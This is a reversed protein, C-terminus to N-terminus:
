ALKEQELRRLERRLVKGIATKPLTDIFEVLRPVKYTAMHEKCYEIIDDPKVKERFGEKLVVYAKVSEGRYEDHVGIVAVEMVGPHKMISSEVDFPSINYGSAIILDKIRDVFFIFGEENMYGADGTRLWGDTQFAEKTEDPKNWYGKAVQPSRYMIEGPKGIPLIERTDPDVIKVEGTTPVGISSANKKNPVNVIAGANCETMGWGQTLEVGTKELWVKQVEAPVPAGAAICVRLRRLDYKSLDPHNLLAIFMTPIGLITNVEYKDLMKLYQTPEFMPMLAVTGGKYLTPHLFLYYGGIHFMPLMQLNMDNHCIGVSHCHSLNAHTMNFHTIMVGKPPGSTGATYIVLAIDEKSNISVIPPYAPCDNICNMFDIADPFTKKEPNMTSPIWSGPESIDALHVSIIHRLGTSGKVKQILPYFIALFIIVQAGSDNLVYTLEDAKFMLNVPVSIAGVKIIGHFAIISQASVPLMVCIRDGKQVGLDALATAFRDSMEDMESYSIKRDCSILATKLPFRYVSEKILDYFHREPTPPMPEAGWNVQNKVYSLGEYLNPIKKGM